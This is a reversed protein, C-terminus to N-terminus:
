WSWGTTNAGLSYVCYDLDLYVWDELQCKVRLKRSNPIVIVAMKCHKQSVSNYFFSNQLGSLSSFEMSSLLRRRADVESRSIDRTPLAALIVDNSSEASSTILQNRYSSAIWCNQWIVCNIESFSKGAHLAVRHCYRQSSRSSGRHKRVLTHELTCVAGASLHIFLCTYLFMYLCTGSSLHIIQWCSRPLCSYM